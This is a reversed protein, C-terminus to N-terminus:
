LPWLRFVYASFLITSPLYLFWEGLIEAERTSEGRKSKGLGKANVDGSGGQGEGAQHLDTNTSEGGGSEALGSRQNRPYVDERSVNFKGLLFNGWVEETGPPLGEWPKDINDTHKESEKDKRPGTGEKVGNGRRKGSGEGKKREKRIVWEKRKDVYEPGSWAM